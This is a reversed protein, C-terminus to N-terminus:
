AADKNAKFDYGATVTGGSGGQQNQVVYEQVISTFSLSVFERPAMEGDRSGSPMVRSVILDKFTYKLYELPTGGPKRMTLVANAIHKGTTCYKFLNPSARDIYHEFQLDYVTVKGSGLGSGTHMSSEQHVTWTWNLLEIENKHKDDLAEGEIGDIKLFIDHAM